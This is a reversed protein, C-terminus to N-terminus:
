LHHHEPKHQANCILILSLCFGSIYLCDQFPPSATRSREIAIASQDPKIRKRTRANSTTKAPMNVVIEDLEAKATMQAEQHLLSQERKENIRLAAERDEATDINEAEFEEESLQQLPPLQHPLQEEHKSAGFPNSPQGPVFAELYHYM